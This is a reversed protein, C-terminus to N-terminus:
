KVRTFQQLKECFYLKIKQRIFIIINSRCACFLERKEACAYWLILSNKASNSNEGEFQENQELQSAMMPFIQNRWESNFTLNHITPNLNWRWCQHQKEEAKEKFCKNIASLQFLVVIFSSTMCLPRTILLIRRACYWSYVFQFSKEFEM